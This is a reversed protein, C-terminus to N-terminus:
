GATLASLAAIGHDRHRPKAARPTIIARLRRSGGAPPNRVLTVLELCDQWSDILEDLRVVLSVTLLDAWESQPGTASLIAAADRQFDQAGTRDGTEKQAVL